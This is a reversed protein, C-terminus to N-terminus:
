VTCACVCVTCARVCVRVCVTCARVCVTCARARARARESASLRAGRRQSIPALEESADSSFTRHVTLACLTRQRNRATHVPMAAARLFYLTCVLSYTRCTSVTVGSTRRWDAKAVTRTLLRALALPDNNSRPRPSCASTPAHRAEAIREASLHSTTVRHEITVLTRSGEYRRQFQRQMVCVPM